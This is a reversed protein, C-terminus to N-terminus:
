SRKIFKLKVYSPESFVQYYVHDFLHKEGCNHCKIMPNLKDTVGIWIQKESYVKKLNNRYSSSFESNWTFTNNFLFRWDNTELIKSLNEYYFSDAIQREFVHPHQRSTKCKLCEIVLIENWNKTRQHNLAEEPKLKNDFLFRTIEYLASYWPEEFNGLYSPGWDNLSGAGGGPLDRYKRLDKFISDWTRDTNLNVLEILIDIYVDEYENM